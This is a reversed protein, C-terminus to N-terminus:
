NAQYEGSVKIIYNEASDISITMEPTNGFLEYITEKIVQPMHYLDKKTADVYLFKKKFLKELTTSVCGNNKKGGSYVWCAGEVTINPGFTSIHILISKEEDTISIDLINKIM